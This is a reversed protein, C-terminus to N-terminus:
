KLRRRKFILDNPVEVSITDGDIGGVVEGAARL